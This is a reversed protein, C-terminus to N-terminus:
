EYYRWKFGACHNREGKCCKTINPQSIKYYDCAEVVSDWRKIENMDLDYQIIKRTTNDTNRRLHIDKYINNYEYTCWELNHVCNNNPNEDKHNVCPLNDPNDLFHMAVLRHIMYTKNIGNKALTAYGYGATTHYLKRIKEKIRQKVGPTSTNAFRELSKIRGLNSVQYYGEYGKVDKWIEEM